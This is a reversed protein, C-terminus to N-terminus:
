DSLVLISKCVKLHRNLSSKNMQLNCHPCHVQVKKREKDKENYAARKELNNKINKDYYEKNSQRIKDSNKSKYKKSCEKRKQQFEPNNHYKEKYKQNISERNKENYKKNALRKKEKKIRAKEEEQEKLVQEKVSKYTKFNDFMNHLVHKM